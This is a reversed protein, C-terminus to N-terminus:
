KEENKRKGKGTKKREWEKGKRVQGKEQRKRGSRERDTEIEKGNSLEQLVWNRRRGCKTRRDIRANITLMFEEGIM